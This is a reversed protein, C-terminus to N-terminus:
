CCLTAKSEDRMSGDSLVWTGGFAQWEEAKGEAFSDHYPLGRTPSRWYASLGFAGLILLGVILSPILVRRRVVRSGTM